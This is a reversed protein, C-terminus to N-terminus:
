AQEEDQDIRYAPKEDQDHKGMVKVGSRGSLMKACSKFVGVMPQSAANQFECRCSFM